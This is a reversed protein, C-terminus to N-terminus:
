GLRRRNARVRKGYVSVTKRAAGAPTKVRGSALAGAIEFGAEVKEAVMLEGERTAAPGGLMMRWSRMAMVMAADAMVFSANLWLRTWQHAAANSIPRTM